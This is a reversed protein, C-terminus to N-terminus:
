LGPSVISPRTVHCTSLGGCDASSRSNYTGNRFEWDSAANWCNGKEWNYRSSPNGGWRWLKLQLKEMLEPSPSALSYIFPNIPGLPRDARIVVEAPGSRNTVALHPSTGASYLGIICVCVLALSWACWPRLRNLASHIM